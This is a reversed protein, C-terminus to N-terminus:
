LEDLSATQGLLLLIVQLLSQAASHAFKFPRDLGDLSAERRKPFLRFTFLNRLTSAPPAGLALAEKVPRRPPEKTFSSTRQRCFHLGDDRDYAQTQHHPRVWGARLLNSGVRQRDTTM